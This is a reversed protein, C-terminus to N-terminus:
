EGAPGFFVVESATLHFPAWTQGRDENLYPDLDYDLTITGGPEILETLDIRWPLVVSGPAWGARDFKWTGGQPRCPNLYVDETWLTNTWRREGKASKATVTRGLPMFEGANNTNPSMGHGTATFRLMAATAGEPVRVTKPVYVGEAPKDPNGIEVRGSWLPVVEIPRGLEAPPPGPYFDLHLTLLWGKMYTEIFADLTRTGGPGARLEPLLETVDAQWTWGKRFPTIFRLLEVPKDNEGGDETPLLRIYALKDWHDYGVEPEGLTLTAIVRGTREPVNSFDVEARPRQAGGHVFVEDFVTVRVPEPIEGTTTATQMSLLDISGVRNGESDRAVGTLASADLRHVGPIFRRELVPEGNIALDIEAGGVVYAIEVAVSAPESGRFEVPSLMNVREVGDWHISIERQPRDYWNGFEDFWGIPRGDERERVPPPPNHADFAIALAGPVNPEDFTVGAPLQHLAEPSLVLGVGRSSEPVVIELAISVRESQAASAAPLVTALLGLALAALRGMVFRGM